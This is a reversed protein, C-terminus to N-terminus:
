GGASNADVLNLLKFQRTLPPDTTTNNIAPKRATYKTMVRPPFSLLAERSLSTNRVRAGTEEAPEGVIDGVNNRGEMAGTKTGAEAGELGVIAGSRGM